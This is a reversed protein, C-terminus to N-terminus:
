WRRMEEFKPCYRIVYSQNKGYKVAEADWGPVPQYERSWECGYQGHPVSNECYWCLQERKQTQLLKISNQSAYIKITKWHRGTLRAIQSVSKGEAALQKILQDEEKTFSM